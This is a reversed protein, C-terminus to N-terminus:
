HVLFLSSHFSSCCLYCTSVLRPHSVHREKITGVFSNGHLRSGIPESQSSSRRSMVLWPVFSFPPDNQECNWEVFVQVCVVCWGCNITSYNQKAIICYREQPFKRKPEDIPNNTKARWLSLGWFRPIQGSPCCNKSTHSWVVVSNM